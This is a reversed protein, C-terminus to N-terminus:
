IHILSLSPNNPLVALTAAEAWSLESPSSGFYKWSAAHIGVINGGLPAHDMYFRLLEEKSYRWELQIAQILEKVKYYLTRPHARGYSRASMRALQMTLTSAGSTVKGASLNKWLARGLAVLDLGFHDYFRQDEFEILATEFKPSQFESPPFRWQGDSAVRASLIESEDSWVVESYVPALVPGDIRWARLLFAFLVILLGLYWYRM